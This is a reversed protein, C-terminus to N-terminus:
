RVNALVVRFGINQHNRDPDLAVRSASRAFASGLDYSGGRIVRLTGSTAGTPNTMAATPYLDYWDSCWEFVNGHMDFLGFANPQKAGSAHIQGSANSATWAFGGLLSSEDGFSFANTSGARAAYEWEAETPLRYEQGSSLRGAERERATLQTCYEVAEDWSVGQVPLAPGTTGSPNRGMVDQFSAQSTEEAQMWFGGSLTVSHQVEDKDRGAATAPSGMIFTGPAIWVFGRTAAANTGEIARYYRQASGAALDVTVSAATGLVVNTLTTWTANTALSETWQIMQTTGAEGTLSLKPVMEVALIASNPPAGITVVPANTYGAGGATVAIQALRNGTLTSTASAGTGGGGSFTVVPPNTYGDGADTLTVASIRGAMLTAVATAQRGAFVVSPLSLLTLIAWLFRM